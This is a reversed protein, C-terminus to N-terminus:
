VLKCGLYPFIRIKMALRWTIIKDNQTNKNPINLLNKNFISKNIKHYFPYYFLKYIYKLQYLKFYIQQTINQDFITDTIKNLIHSKLGDKLFGIVKITITPDIVEM